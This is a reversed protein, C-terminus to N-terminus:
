FKKPSSLIKSLRRFAPTEPMCWGARIYSLINKTHCLFYIFILSYHYYADVHPALFALALSILLACKIQPHLNHV